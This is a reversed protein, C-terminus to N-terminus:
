TTFGTRSPITGPMSTVEATGEEIAEVYAVVEAEIQRVDDAKTADDAVAMANLTLLVAASLLTKRIM